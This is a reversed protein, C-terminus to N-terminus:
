NQLCYDQNVEITEFALKETAVFVPYLIFVAKCVAESYWHCPIDRIKSYKPNQKPMNM